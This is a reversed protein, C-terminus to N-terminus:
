ARRGSNPVSRDPQEDQRQRCKAQHRRLTNTPTTHALFARTIGDVKVTRIEGRDTQGSYSGATPVNEKGSWYELSRQVANEGRDPTHDNASSALSGDFSRLDRYTSTPFPSSGQALARLWRYTIGHPRDQSPTFVIRRFFCRTARRSSTCIVRSPSAATMVKRSSLPGVVRRLMPGM